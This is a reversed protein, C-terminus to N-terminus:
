CGTNLMAEKYEEEEKKKKEEPNMTIGNKEGLEIVQKALEKQKGEVTEGLLTDITAVAGSWILSAAGDIDSESLKTKGKGPTMVIYSSYIENKYILDYTFMKGMIMRIYVMCGKYPLVRLVTMHGHINKSKLKNKSMAKKVEKLKKM